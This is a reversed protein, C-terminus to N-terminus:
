AILVFIMVPHAIKQLAELFSTWSLQPDASLKHFIVYFAGSVIVIKLLVTLFQTAKDSWPNMTCLFQKKAVVGSNNSM